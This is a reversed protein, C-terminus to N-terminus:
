MRAWVFIGLLMFLTSLSLKSTVASNCLDKECCVSAAQSGGDVQINCIDKACGRTVGGALAGKYCRNEDSGCMKITEALPKCNNLCMDHSYCQLAESFAFCGLLTLATIIVSKM